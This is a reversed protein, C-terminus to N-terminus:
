SQRTLFIGGYMEVTEGVKKPGADTLFRNAEYEYFFVDDDDMIHLSGSKRSGISIHDLSWWQNKFKIQM